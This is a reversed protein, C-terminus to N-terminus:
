AQMRQSYNTTIDSKYVVAPFVILIDIYWEDIM